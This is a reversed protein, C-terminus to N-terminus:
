FGWPFFLTQWLDTICASLSSVNGCGWIQLGAWSGPVLPGVWAPMKLRPTMWMRWIPFNFCLAPLFGLM